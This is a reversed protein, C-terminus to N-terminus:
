DDDEDDDNDDEDDDNDDRADGAGFVGMRWADNVVLLGAVGVVGFVEGRGERNLFPWCVGSSSCSM